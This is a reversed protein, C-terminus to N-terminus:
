ANVPVKIAYAHEGEPSYTVYCLWGEPPEHEALDEQHRCYEAAREKANAVAGEATEWASIIADTHRDVIVSLYIDM